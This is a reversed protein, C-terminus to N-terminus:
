LIEGEQLLREIEKVSSADYKYDFYETQIFSNIFERSTKSKDENYIGVTINKVDFSLAYGFMGLMFVPIFIIIGLSLKDRIIQRAEKVLIPKIKVIM